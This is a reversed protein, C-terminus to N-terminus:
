NFDMRELRMDITLSRPIHTFTKESLSLEVTMGPMLLNPVDWHVIFLMYKKIPNLCHM